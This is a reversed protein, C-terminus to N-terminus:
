LKELLEQWNEIDMFIWEVLARTDGLKIDGLVKSMMSVSINYSKPITKLNLEKIKEESIKKSNADYVKSYNLGLVACRPVTSTEGDDIILGHNRCVLGRNNYIVCKKDELFPCKYKFDLVNKSKDKLFEKREKIIQIAKEFIKKRLDEDLAEFGLKAFKYEMESFPYYSNSCCIDCGEKCCIYEKEAEFFSDIQEQIKELYYAYKLLKEDM